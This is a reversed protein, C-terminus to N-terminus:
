GRARGEDTLRLFADELSMETAKLEFLKWGGRVVASALEDQVEKGPSCEIEYRRREGSEKSTVQWVGKVSRLSRLIEAEPGVAVLEVRQGQRLRSSLNETRDVAVIKGRDMIIVRECVMSVESLIHSSLLVTHERGLSQILQRTEVVQRPDIGITPEDLILVDPDHAIAQALGVRQRYGKSLTGILDKARDELRCLRMVEGIRQRRKRREVGRVSAAFDLYAEVTMDTYLPVTEPLYGIRRRAELSQTLVDFGAISATGSTAPIYGSLIRMTTTKGAGNPGLFGVIEGKGVEFSVSEVALRSGYYKTLNEVQIV